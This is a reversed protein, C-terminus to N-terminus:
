MCCLISNASCFIFFLTDHCRTLTMGVITSLYTWQWVRTHASNDKSSICIRSLIRVTQRLLENLLLLYRPVRQIPTILFSALPTAACAPDSEAREVVAQALSRALSHTLPVSDPDTIINPSIM